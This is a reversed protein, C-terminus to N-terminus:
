RLVLFPVIFMTILFTVVSFFILAAAGNGEEVAKIAITQLDLRPFLIRRTLHTGGALFMAIALSQFVVVNSADIWYLLGGVLGVLILIRFFDSLRRITTFTLVPM